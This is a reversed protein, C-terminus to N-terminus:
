PQVAEVQFCEAKLRWIEVACKTVDTRVLVADIRVIDDFVQHHLAFNGTNLLRAPRGVSQGLCAGPLHDRPANKAGTCDSQPMLSRGLADKDTDIPMPAGAFQRAPQHLGLKCALRATAGARQLRRRGFRRRHSIAPM